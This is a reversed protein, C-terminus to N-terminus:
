DCTTGAITQKITIYHGIWCVCRFDRLYALHELLKLMKLFSTNKDTLKKKLDTMEIRQQLTDTPFILKCKWANM